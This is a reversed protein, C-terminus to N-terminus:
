DNCHKQYDWHELHSQLDHVLWGTLVLIASVIIITVLLSVTTM